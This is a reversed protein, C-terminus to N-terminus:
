QHLRPRQGGLLMQVAPIVGALRIPILDNEVGLIGLVTRALEVGGLDIAAIPPDM